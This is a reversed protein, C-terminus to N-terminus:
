NIQVAAGTAIFQSGDYVFEQVKTKSIVGALVPAKFGTGFTLSRATTDSSVKLIVRDGVVPKSKADLALTGADTMDITIINVSDSVNALMEAAFAITLAIAYGIKFRKM